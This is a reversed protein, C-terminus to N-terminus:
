DHVLLPLSLGTELSDIDFFKSSLTDNIHLSLVTALMGIFDVGKAVIAAVNIRLM